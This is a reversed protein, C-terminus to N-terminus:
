YAPHLCDRKYRSRGGDLTKYLRKDAGAITSRDIAHRDKTDSGATTEPVSVTETAFGSPM